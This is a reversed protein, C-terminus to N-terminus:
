NLKQKMRPGGPLHEEENRNFIACNERCFREVFGLFNEETLGVGYFHMSTGHFASHIAMFSRVSATELRDVLGVLVEDMANPDFVGENAQSWPQWM